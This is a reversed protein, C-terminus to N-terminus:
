IHPSRRYQVDVSELTMELGTSGIAFIQQMAEFGFSKGIAVPVPITLSFVQFTPLPM